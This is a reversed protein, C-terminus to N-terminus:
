NQFKELSYLIVERGCLKLFIKDRGMRRASGAAVIVASVGSGM